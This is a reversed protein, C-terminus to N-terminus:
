KPIEKGRLGKVYAIANRSPGYTSFWEPHTDMTAIQNQVEKEELYEESPIYDQEVNGMDFGVLFECVKRTVPLEKGKSSEFVYVPIYDGQESGPIEESKSINGPAWKEFIYREHIYSYKRTLRVETVERLFIGSEDFDRYTGKRYEFETNSWVIRFLPKNYPTKYNEMLWKNLNSINVSDM